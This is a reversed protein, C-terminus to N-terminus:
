QEEEWDNNCSTAMMAGITALVGYALMKRTKM